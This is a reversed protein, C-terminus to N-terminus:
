VNWGKEAQTGNRPDEHRAIDQAHVQRFLPVLTESADVANLLTRHIDDFGAAVDKEFAFEEDSREALIRFTNAISLLAAPLNDIMALVEMNGDPEYTRAANEMEAAAEEFKFGSVHIAEEATIPTTTHPAPREIRDAIGDTGDQAADADAAAEAAHLQERIAEDRAAREEAAAGVLRRYLRRGPHVLWPLNFKRGIPSTLFGLLGVPLALLAALLRRRHFRAASRRLAQRAAKRAPAKRLVSRQADVQRGAAADRKERQRAVAADRLNRVTRGTGGLLRGAAGGKGGSRTKSGPTPTNRRADAVARRAASTQARREARSGTDAQQAARLAKVQGARSATKSGFGSHRGARGQSTRGSHGMGTGPRGSKNSAPSTTRATSGRRHQGPVRGSGGAGSRHWAARNGSTGSTRAAATRGAARAAARRADRRPSPTRNRTAAAVGLVVAGTAAVAAALPGGVLSAAAVMGVTTNTGSLALPVVPWGGPTHEVETVAPVPVPAPPAQPPPTDPPAPVAVPEISVETM